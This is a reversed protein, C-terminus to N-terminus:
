VLWRALDGTRYFVSATGGASLVLPSKKFFGGGPGGCFSKDLPHPDTSYFDTSYFNTSYLNTSPHKELEDGIPGIPRIPGIKFFKEATLEPRNLYGRAVGVGGIVMEGAVGVPVFTLWRDLLYIVTNNIPRGIPVRLRIGEVDEASAKYEVSTVTTETPGFKNFFDYRCVWKKLLLLSCEDGGSVIRKVENAYSLEMLELFSPIAHIHNVRYRSVYAAFRDIDLLIGKDVLVLVGGCLLALWVQEVSADFCLSSFQLIREGESLDFFRQQGYIFNVVSPHDVVVGKPRGTSGSTYIIYAAHHTSMSAWRFSPKHSLPGSDSRRLVDENVQPSGHRRGVLTSLDIVEVNTDHSNFVKKDSKVTDISNDADGALCPGEWPNSKEIGGSRLLLRAFSDALMYQIREAPYEPDIPLYAAGAKLIGLVAIIVEVTREAWLAIITDYEIGRERLQIALGSSQFSVEAYTLQAIAGSEDRGVLAIDDPKREVQREFLCDLTAETPFAHCTSNFERLLMEKEFPSIMELCYLVRNRDAAVAATLNLFYGSFRKITEEKFLDSCYVWTAIINTGTDICSLSIDFKSIRNMRNDGTMTRKTSWAAAPEQSANESSNLTFLTDFLPNRSTDRIIELSDVLEEFPYDQNEFAALTQM